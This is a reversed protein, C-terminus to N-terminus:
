TKRTEINVTLTKRLAAETPSTMPEVAHWSNFTKVFILAQNPNFEFDKIVNVEEFPLSRSIENYIKRKDKPWVVATSGGWAPNWEGPQYMSFVLTVLKRRIDTHPRINGGKGNMMSFEFRASLESIGFLTSLPNARSGRRKSVIRYKKVGLDIFNTKLMSLTREIFDKSKIYEHFEGWTANEKLFRRYEAANNLESLSYKNGLEPKYKFLELPPYSSCLAGYLGPELVERILGIPYPEYEFEVHDYSFM